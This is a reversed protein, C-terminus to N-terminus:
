HSLLAFPCYYVCLQLPIKFATSNVATSLSVRDKEEVTVVSALALKSISDVLMVRQHIVNLRTHTVYSNQSQAQEPVGPTLARIRTHSSCSCDVPTVLLLPKRISVSLVMQKSNVQM